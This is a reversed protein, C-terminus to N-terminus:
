RQTRGLEHGLYRACVKRAGAETSYGLRLSVAEWSLGDLYRLRFARRTVSDEIQDIWERIEGIEARCRRVLAEDDGFLSYAALRYRREESEIVEAMLSTLQRLRKQTM